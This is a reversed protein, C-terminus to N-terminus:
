RSTTIKVIKGQAEVVVRIWRVIHEGSPLASQSRYTVLYRPTPTAGVPNNTKPTPQPRVKPLCGNVEPFRAQVQQTIQNLTKSDIM